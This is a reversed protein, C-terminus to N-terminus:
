TTKRAEYAALRNYLTKLSIGLQKAAEPKRGETRVLAVSIAAAQIEKLTQPALKSRTVIKLAEGLQAVEERLSKVTRREKALERKTIRLQEGDTM